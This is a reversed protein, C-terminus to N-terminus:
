SSQKPASRTFVLPFGGGAQLWTGTIKGDQLSGEFAGEAWKWAMRLHPPSYEFESTPIFDDKGFEDINSLAASYSGDPLKAIDLALRITASVKGLTVVWSGTWHGQLDNPSTFSYDKDADRAHEARYDARSVTAPISKGDQTWSGNIRTRTNNLEGEFVGAGSAPKIIVSPRNYSVTTPQGNAGQMPNDGEARFTGDAQEAIKLNVPVADPGTGIEGKWYGQLDSGARPAFDNEALREPVTDPSATRVLMVPAPQIFHIAHDLIMQTADANIRLNWTNRPTPELRLNPFDYVAKGMPVDKRGKEIWDTTARYGDPTKFLKLVVRTSAAEGAATGADDLLMVGEWAGQINPYSAARVAHIIEVVGVGLGSALLLGVGSATITKAKTWAMLKLAGKILALTSGGASAGKAAAVAAITKTLAVPAASMANASMAGALLSTTSSIGRRQFYRHLKELARNIRMRASSEGTNLSTGVEALTKGEFFRLLIAQRDKEGLRAMAEDLVPSIQAWLPDPTNPDHESPMHAEQEYHLRRASTRVQTMAVFRTTKFLWGSLITRESLRGAKQALIIFVAQTVEEALHVDRTQRRAASYVLGLHRSVLTEFASDSHKTAYERLLAIDDMAAM